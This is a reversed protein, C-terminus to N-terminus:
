NIEGETPRGIDTWDLAYNGFHQASNSSYFGTLYFSCILMVFSCQLIWGDEVGAEEPM